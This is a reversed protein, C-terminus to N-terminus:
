KFDGLWRTLDVNPTPKDIRAQPVPRRFGHPALDLSRAWELMVKGNTLCTLDKWDLGLRESTEKGLDLVSAKRPDATKLLEVFTAFVRMGLAGTRAINKRRAPNDVFEIAESTLIYASEKKSLLGWYELAIVAKAWSTDPIGSRDPTKGLRRASVIRDLVLAISNYRINPVTLDKAERPLLTRLKGDGASAQYLRKSKPDFLSLEAAELADALVRAYTLWTTASASIWPSNRQMSEALDELSLSGKSGLARLVHAVQRNRTLRERLHARVARDFASEDEPLPFTLQVFDDIIEAFGLLRVERIYNYYSRGGWGMKEQFEKLPMSGGAERLVQAAKITGSIAYRLIYNEQIPLQDTNLYDRFIDWYIDYKMGVQTLLRRTVLSAVVQADFDGLESAFVPAVKAIRKLTEGEKATLGKLDASFLEEVNLGSTAIEMQSIGSHRQAQVHACLKKLLWPFGQSSEALLYRVDKRLEEDLARELESLMDDVEGKGFVDLPIYLSTNTIENRIDFPFNGLIGFIDQKWAFGIILNTEANLTHLYLERVRALAEPLSFLNEFQDFFIVLAKGDAELAKGARLLAATAGDFGTINSQVNKLFGKEELRRLIFDAVHIVFQSSTASRSDIATVFHGLEQLRRASKLVLSSKGWGSNAEFVVARRRTTKRLVSDVLKEVQDIVLTRGVFFEPAAPFQYEFPLTAGKVEVIEEPTSQLLPQQKGNTLNLFSFAKSEPYVEGIFSVEAKDTVQNGAADFFVVASAVNTGPTIVYQVWYFGRATHLLISDGAKGAALTVKSAIVEPRAVGVQGFLCELIEPEELLQLTAEPTAEQMEKLLAKAHSNIGPLAVFLGQTRPSKKMKFSLKGYFQQIAAADVENEYCKCEVLVPNGGTAEIDVEMGAYNTKPQRDVNYGHSKLVKAVLDEFLAGKANAKAQPSPASVAVRLLAM